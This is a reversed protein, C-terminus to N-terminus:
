FVLLQQDLFNVLAKRLMKRRSSFAVTIVNRLSKFLQQDLDFDLPEVQVISSTVKPSPTFFQADVDFSQSCKALFQCLISLRGYNSAHQSACIRDVVEKQLMLTM